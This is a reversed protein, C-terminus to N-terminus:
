ISGSGVLVLWLATWLLLLATWLPRTEERFRREAVVIPACAAYFLAVLHPPVGPTTSTAFPLSSAFRAVAILVTVLAGNCANLPYALVPAVNGLMSGLLGLTLIPGSIPVAILNTFVGVTSVEGFTAAVIPTTSVQAALSVSILNSVAGPPDDFPRLVTREVLANLPERLLLIGFVAAVSLQFGTSYVLLPNYALVAALMTTMFHLASVQRGLPKAALVFTAVVGARIASPPAGAIVIYLWTLLITVGARADPPVAVLRLGFFVVAALIAVHQGSIALVHTVGSRQFAVELEEPILSRDGLVMGRVVAAETPRLGHGLAADTRRHVRGIWGRGDGAPYVGTAEVVASIRKTSLYKAYDFGDEGVEPLSIEGDVRVKDGVGVSLDGAFVEVGGGRIVERGEHWLHEVRVDARYGFGSEVPPTSVRGVVIVEGPELGALEALPDPVSAHVSAIGIGGVLFLPATLAMLCWQEAVLGRWAFAGAALVICAVVATPALAPAATGVVVGLTLTAAWLDLRVAPRLDM